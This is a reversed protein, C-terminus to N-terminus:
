RPIQPNGPNAVRQGPQIPQAGNNNPTSVDPGPSFPMEVIKFDKPPNPIFSQIFTEKITDALSANVDHKSFEFQHYVPNTPSWSPDYVIIGDPLVKARNLFITVKQYNSADEARKPYADLTLIDQRPKGDPGNPVNGPEIWYRQKVKQAEIGFVFPLPSEVIQIGKMNDPLRFREVLKQERVFKFISDGDCLWWDGFRNPLQKYQPKGAGDKGVYDEHKESKFMGKDPKMFRLEGADIASPVNGGSKAPNFEWCQYQASYRTISATSNQWANLVQDVWAEAEKSLPARGQIIPQAAANGGQIANGSPAANGANPAGAPSGASNGSLSTGQLTGQPAGLAGNGQPNGANQPNGLRQGSPSQLQAVVFPSPLCTGAVVLFFPLFRAVQM